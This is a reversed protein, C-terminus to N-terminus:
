RHVGITSIIIIDRAKTCAETTLNATIRIPVKSHSQSCYSHSQSFYANHITFRLLVVTRRPTDTCTAM